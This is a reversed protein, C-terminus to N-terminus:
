IKQKGIFIGKDMKAFFDQYFKPDSIQKTELVAGHNDFVKDQFNVRVRVRNGMQTVNVSAERVNNQAYIVRPAGTLGALVAMGFADRRGQPTNAIDIEKTGHLIGLETNANKVTFGEDQLVDLAAKLAMKTDSTDYERTEVQRIELQTRAPSPAEAMMGACSSLMFAMVMVLVLVLGLKGSKKM